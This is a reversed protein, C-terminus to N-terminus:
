LWAPNRQPDALVREIERVFLAPECPKVVVGAFGAQRANEILGGYSYGTAAMLAISATEPARRLRRATEYGSIGPLDLDLIVLNPQRASAIKLAELGDTATLVRYGCARLYLAWM